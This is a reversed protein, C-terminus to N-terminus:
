ISKKFENASAIMEDAHLRAIDSSSSGIIRVIEDRKGAEDLVRVSTTTKGGSEIKEIKLAVDSMACIQPLHSIAIVQTNKSIKAFKTAVTKSTEGSLGADIEDFVYTSIEQYESIIVKLSLMFRSMEGGSIIKSLPKLPEGLNASFMMEIEDAGSEKYPPKDAEKYSTFDVAFEANKMGLEKLQEKVKEAFVKAGKKRIDSLESYLGNLKKVLESRKATAKEYEADFNILKEYEEKASSLFEDIEKFDAGYKRKLSRILDLRKEVEDAEFPDFNCDALYDSATDLVDSLETALASLRERLDYYNDSINSIKGLSKLAEGVMDEACNEGGLAEKVVTLAEGIKEANKIVEAKKILEAEEGEKLDANEIEEIQFKLIDARIARESESGGLSSLVEDLSKLSIIIERINEKIKSVKVDSFRDLVKLQEAEKLLSYHESQGHVDVLLSTIPRLTSVTVQEGNLRIVSKGDITLKRSIILEDSYEVGCEELLRKVEQSSSIDFVASVACADEGRRIMTKDAKAGLAFNLSEIIVSKGAGTEGSLVNLGSSFTETPRLTLSSFLKNSCSIAFFVWCNCVCSFNLLNPLGMSGLKSLGYADM